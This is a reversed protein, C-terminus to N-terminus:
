IAEMPLRGPKVTQLGEHEHEDDTDSEEGGAMRSTSTSPATVKILSHGPKRKTKRCIGDPLDEMATVAGEAESSSSPFDLPPTSPRNDIDYNGVLIERQTQKHKLNRRQDAAWDSHEDSSETIIHNITYLVIYLLYQGENDTRNPPSDEYDVPQTANDVMREDEDSAISVSSPGHITNQDTHINHPVPLPPRSTFTNNVAPQNDNSAMPSPDRSASQDTPNSPVTLASTSHSYLQPSVMCVMVALKM